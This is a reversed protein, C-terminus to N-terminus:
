PVLFKVPHWIGEESIQELNLDHMYLGDAYEPYQAVPFGHAAAITAIKLESLARIDILDTAKVVAKLVDNRVLNCSFPPAGCLHRRAHAPFRNTFKWGWWDPHLHPYLITKATLGFDKAPEVLKNLSMNCYVDWEAIFYYDFEPHRKYFDYLFFDCMLWKAYNCTLMARPIPDVFDADQMEAIVIGPNHERFSKLNRAYVTENVGTFHHIVVVLNM